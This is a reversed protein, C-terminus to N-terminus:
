CYVTRNLHQFTSYFYHQSQGTSKYNIVFHDVSGTVCLVLQNEEVIVALYLSGDSSSCAPQFFCSFHFNNVCRLLVGM